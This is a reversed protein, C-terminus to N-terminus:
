HRRKGNFNNQRRRVPPVLRPHGAVGTARKAPSRHIVVPGLPDCPDLSVGARPTNAAADTPQDNVPLTDKLRTADVPAQRPFYTRPSMLGLVCGNLFAWGMMAGFWQYVYTM